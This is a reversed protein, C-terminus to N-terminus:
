QSSRRPEIGLIPVLNEEEGCRGTRSRHGDLWKDVPVPHKEWPTFHGLRSASWEGAGLASTVGGYTKM